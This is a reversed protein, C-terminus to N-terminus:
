WKIRYHPSENRLHDTLDELQYGDDELKKKTANSPVSYFDLHMHGGNAAREINAFLEIDHQGKVAQAIQRAESAKM